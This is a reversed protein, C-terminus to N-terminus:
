RDRRRGPSRPLDSDVREAQVQVFACAKWATRSLERVVDALAEQSITSLLPWYLCSTNPAISRVKESVRAVSNTAIM